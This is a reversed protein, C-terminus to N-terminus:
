QVVGFSTTMFVYGLKSLDSDMCRWGGLHHQPEMRWAGYRGCSWRGNSINRRELRRNSIHAATAKRNLQTPVTHINYMLLMYIVCCYRTQIKYRRMENRTREVGIRIPPQM